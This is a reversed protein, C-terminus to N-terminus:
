EAYLEKTLKEFAPQYLCDYGDPGYPMCNPAKPYVELVRRAKTSEAIWWCSSQNGLFLKSGVIIQATELMNKTEVWRARRVEQKFWVFEAKTGVFVVDEFYRDQLFKYDILENRYRTTRNCVVSHQYDLNPEVELCPQSLDPWVDFVFSYWRRMESRDLPICSRRFFDLDVDVKGSKYHEAQCYSQSNLLPLLAEAAEYTFEAGNATNLLITGGGLAKVTPLSALCDGLKGSIKFTKM